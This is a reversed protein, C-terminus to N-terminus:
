GIRFFDGSILTAKISKVVGPHLKIDPKIEHGNQEDNEIQFHRKKEWPSRRKFLYAQEPEPRDHNKEPYEGYAKDILPFFARQFPILKKSFHM